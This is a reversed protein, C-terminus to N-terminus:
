DDKPYLIENIRDPPPLTELGQFAFVSTWLMVLGSAFFLVGGANHQSKSKGLSGIALGAVAALTAGYFLPRFIRRQDHNQILRRLADAKNKRDSASSM